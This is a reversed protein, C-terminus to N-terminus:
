FLRRLLINEELDILEFLFLPKENISNTTDIETKDINLAMAIGVKLQKRFLDFAVAATYKICSIFFIHV